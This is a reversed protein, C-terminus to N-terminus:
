QSMLLVVIYEKHCWCSFTCPPCGASTLLWRQAAAVFATILLNTTGDHSCHTAKNM